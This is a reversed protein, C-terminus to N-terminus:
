GEQAVLELLKEQQRIGVGKIRRGHTIGAEKMIKTAHYQTIGPLARLASGVLLRQVRENGAYEPAFMEALSIEGSRIQNLLETKAARAEAAKDLAAKVQEPTRAGFAM